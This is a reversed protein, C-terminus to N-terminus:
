GQVLPEIVMAAISEGQAAFLKDMQDCCKFFYDPYREGEPAHYGDPFDVAITHFILDRYVKHFLDIGGISVSGLTDGHYSNALHAIKKKKSRGTNQWYQYAMKIGIEVATSGNDSYFVKNLGEPTIEVLKKALETAPVNALGLMTSHDLRRLQQVIRRNIVPHNHGHVNVWLSSVGDLYRRGDTDFLYNGSAREIMLPSERCWDKMQTFPHWVYKQDWGRLLATTQSKVATQDTFISLVDMGHCKNNVEEANFGTLHPLIGLIPVDGLKQIIEPNTQEAVGQAFHKGENFLVGKIPIGQQKLVELTLLSHNITGLSLRSVVLVDLQFQHIFDLTSYEESFPVMLGGAGEILLYDYKRSLRDFAEQIFTLDLTKGQRKLAIHPSLPEPLFVPNIDSLIDDLGLHEKLQEADNGGCQVPKFVGVRKGKAMLLSAIAFTAATKGVGTDTGTIFINKASM